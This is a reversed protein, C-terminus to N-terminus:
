KFFFGFAFLAVLLAIMIALSLYVASMPDLYTDVRVQVGQQGFLYTGLNLSNNNM